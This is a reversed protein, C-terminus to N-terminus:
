PNVMEFGLAFWATVNGFESNLSDIWFGLPITSGSAGPDQGTGPNVGRQQFWPCSDVGPSSGCGPNTPFFGKECM